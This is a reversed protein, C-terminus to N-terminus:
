RSSNEIWAIQSHHAELATIIVIRAPRAIQRNRRTSGGGDPAGVLTSASEVTGGSGAAPEQRRRDVEDLAILRSRCLCGGRQDGVALAHAQSRPRSDRM